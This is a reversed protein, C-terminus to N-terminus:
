EKNEIEVSQSKEIQNYYMYNNTFVIELFGFLVFTILALFATKLDNIKNDMFGSFGYIAAVMIAAVLIVTTVVLGITNLLM